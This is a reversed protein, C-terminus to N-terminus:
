YGFPLSDQGLLPYPSFRTVLYVTGAAMLPPAGAHSGSTQLATIILAPFSGSPPHGEFRMDLPNRVLSAATGPSSFPRRRMPAWLPPRLLIAGWPWCTSRRSSTKPLALAQALRLSGGTAARTVAVPPRHPPPSHPERGAGLLSVFVIHELTATPSIINRWV